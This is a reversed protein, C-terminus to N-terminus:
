NRISENGDRIKIQVLKNNKNMATKPIPCFYNKWTFVRRALRPFYSTLTTVTYFDKRANLKAKVNMGRVPRNYAEMADQGWRRLDHYRRGECMFEIQRERKILNRMTFQDPLETMGPLGARWRIQNFASLIETEDRSQVTIGTALDTFDANLENLAEAYNLLIEAYRFIPFSKPRVAASQKLNDEIHIYKVCTYGTRNYDEPYNQNPAATGDSYYTVEVNKLAEDTGTYSTGPWFRHCFGMTAYFRMERDKYMGATNPRLQYGSFAAQGSNGIANYSAPTGPQPYPYTSSSSNIDCGDKMYFADACDQTLNLGNGGGLQYPAAIWLPSDGTTSPTCSYIIEDNLLRPVEGNFIYAFSRYPDIDKVRVGDPFTAEGINEAVSVPLVPTDTEKPSTFLKYKNTNILRKAMVAAEGWKSNEERQNIFYEGDSKRKWDSYFPNGNYWPSAAYLLVRSMVALAVSKTPINMDSSAERTDWLFEYAKELNQCIYDVVEDYTARELAITEVDATVDFAEDPAVPTPGYQLLLLYMYYGRLFYCRGMYDRRDIDSIDPVEGIRSLVINAKRIGQYYNPYNNYDSSFPTVEDLLYRIAAHRNDNWSTFNEDSAGQFPNSSSTWLNGENPLYSAAGRIYQDVLDQRQFVSDLQTMNMFYDDVSLFDKCSNSCVLFGLVFCLHVPLNRLKQMYVNIKKM